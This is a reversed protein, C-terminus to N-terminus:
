TPTYSTTDLAQPVPHKGNDEWLYGTTRNKVSAQYVVM